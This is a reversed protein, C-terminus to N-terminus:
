LIIIGLAIFLIFLVSLDFFVGIDLFSLIYFICIFIIMLIIIVFILKWGISFLLDMCLGRSSVCLGKFWPGMLTHRSHALCSLFENWVLQAFEVCVNCEGEIFALVADKWLYIFM